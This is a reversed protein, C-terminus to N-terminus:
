AYYDLNGVEYFNFDLCDLLVPSFDEMAAILQYQTVTGRQVPGRGAM